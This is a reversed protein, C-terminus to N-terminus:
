LGMQCILLSLSVTDLSIVLTRTHSFPLFSVSVLDM